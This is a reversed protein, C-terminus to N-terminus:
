QCRAQELNLGPPQRHSLDNGRRIPHIHRHRREAPEVAVDLDIRNHYTRSDRSQGSGIEQFACPAAHGHQLSVADAAEVRHRGGSVHGAHGVDIERLQYVAEAAIV